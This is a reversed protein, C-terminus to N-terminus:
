SIYRNNEHSYGNLIDTLGPTTTNSIIPKCQRINDM